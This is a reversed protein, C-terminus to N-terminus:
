FPRGTERRVRIRARLHPGYGFGIEIVQGRIGHPETALHRVLGAGQAEAATSALDGKDRATERPRTIVLGENLGVLSTERGDALDEVLVDRASRVAKATPKM